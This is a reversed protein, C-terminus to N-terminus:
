GGAPHLPRSGKGAKGRCASDWVLAWSEQWEEERPSLGAGGPAEWSAVLFPVSLRATMRPPVWKCMEGVHRVGEGTFTMDETSMDGTSANSSAAGKHEPVGSRM